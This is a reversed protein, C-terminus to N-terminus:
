TGVTHYPKWKEAIANLKAVTPLEKLGYFRKVGARLGLDGVPLVDPRSIAFM